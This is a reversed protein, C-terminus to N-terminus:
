SPYILYHSRVESLTCIQAKLNEVVNWDYSRALNIDRYPFCIRDLLVYLLETIDDGGMSLIMRLFTLWIDADFTSLKSRSDAVVLGEDVCAISTKKAGIDVM